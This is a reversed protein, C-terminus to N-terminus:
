RRTDRAPAVGYIEDLTVLHVHGLAKAKGKCGSTFGTKAFVYLHKNRYPFLESRQVLTDLVSTDVRANTWKCEAFLANNDDSYAMIDIEAQTKRIPDNGWWRGMHTFHIPLADAINQRWLYQGCIDEFVKGMFAPIHPEVANYARDVLGNHILAVNEPIFRYWFRFMNDSISYITKRTSKETLPSEKSVIGLSILNKLYSTCASSEIGVKAAIETNRTAGTAIAKIVANYHAAERVEQKLLNAPEEFLYATPDLFNSKINEELTLASNMFSLYLPVGGTIGYVVALDHPSMQPFYRMTEFYDFPALKIQATRRGYLPSKYGLVQEEMFSTSSGCLILMLKSALFQQDIVKQLLSSFGPYSAALYPYEDIVLIVRRKTAAEYVSNLAAQFSPFVPADASNHGLQYAMISRSLNELNDKSSTELGFFYIAEKDKIFENILSTKGVRRRGYIAVFEFKDSCYLSHLRALETERGIFM